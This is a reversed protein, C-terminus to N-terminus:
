GYWRELARSCPASLEGDIALRAAVVRRGPDITVIGSSAAGQEILRQTAEASSSSTTVFGGITEQQAIRVTLAKLRRAVHLAPDDSRRIPFRGNSDRELGRLAAWLLTVDAVLQGDELADHVYQSKGSGAPGRVITLAM